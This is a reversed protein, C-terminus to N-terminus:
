NRKLGLLKDLNLRAQKNEPEIEVIIQSIKIAQDIEGKYVRITRLAKLAPIFTSDIHLAKAFQKIADDHKQRSSLELGLDYHAVYNNNTVRIAHEFLKIGNAWYRTQYWATSGFFLLFIMAIISVVRKGNRFHLSLDTGGWSVMIFLGILPIYTYRDAMGQLGVQVLGIAPFLTGLYWLWGVILYPCQRRLKFVLWTMLILLFTTAAVHFLPEKLPHPYGAALRFPWIMKGIYTVYSVAANSLRDVFPLANLDAMAGRQALITMVSSAISLIVLPLKEYVLKFFLFKSKSNQSGLKRFRNLPWYDLLLLVFPLTVLMPKSMLSLAFFIGMSLYRKMNPHETYRIYGWITLMGFFASLVDKRESIWAVSEVHLPHIAFLAAIFGSQWIDKTMKNFLGFLLLTNLMHFIVNVFLHHGPHMGYIQCDLMHSLWTIPHWNSVITATFAWKLGDLTLGQRVQQNEYVYSPDDLIIFDHHMVQLYVALTAAVLFVSILLELRVSYKVSKTTNNQNPKM